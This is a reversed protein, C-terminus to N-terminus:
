VGSILCLYWCNGHKIPTVKELAWWKPYGINTKLPTFTRWNLSVTPTTEFNPQCSIFCWPKGLWPTYPSGWSSICFICVFICKTTVATSPPPTLFFFINDDRNLPFIFGNQSACIKDSPNTTWGGVLAYIESILGIEVELRFFIVKAIGFFKEDDTLTSIELDTLLDTCWKTCFKFSLHYLHGLHWKTWLSNKVVPRQRSKTTSRYRPSSILPNSSNITFSIRRSFWTIYSRYGLICLTKYMGPPAPNRGDVTNPSKYFFADKWDCRRPLYSKSLMIYLCGFHLAACSPALALALCVMDIWIVM